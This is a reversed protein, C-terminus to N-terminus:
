FLGLVLGCFKNVRLVKFALIATATGGVGWFFLCVCVVMCVFVFVVRWSEDMWQCMTKVRHFYPIPISFIVKVNNQVYDSFRRKIRFM